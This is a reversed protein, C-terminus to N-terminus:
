VVSYSQPASSKGPIVAINRFRRPIESVEFSNGGSIEIFYRLQRGPSGHTLRDLPRYIIKLSIDTVAEPMLIPHLTKSEATLHKDVASKWSSILACGDSAAECLEGYTISFQQSEEGRRIAVKICYNCSHPSLRYKTALLQNQAELGLM